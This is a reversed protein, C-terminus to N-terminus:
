HNCFPICVPIKITDPKIKSCNPRKGHLATYQESIIVPKGAKVLKLEKYFDQDSRSLGLRVQPIAESVLNNEIYNINLYYEGIASNQENYLAASIKGNPSLVTIKQASAPLLSLIGLFCIIKIKM